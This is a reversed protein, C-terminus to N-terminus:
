DTLKIIQDNLPGTSVYRIEKGLSKEIYRFFGQDNIMEGHVTFKDYQLQGFSSYQKCVKLKSLYRLIDIKTIVLYTPNNLAIAQKLQVLDLWGCRRPRGTTAGYEQGKEQLIRFEKSTQKLETPFPGAGVRTSYAKFVGIINKIETLPIGVGLPAYAALTNCSTVYPYDGHDIDLMTGNAGELLIKKEKKIEKLLYDSTDCTFGALYDGFNRYKDYFSYFNLIKRSMLNSMKAMLESSNVLDGMRIGDRKYKSCYTPGIGKKTTGIKMFKENEEDEILHIPFTVHAKNSILLNGFFEINHKDKLNLIENVLIEPDIVMGNGLLHIKDQHLVSSPLHHLVLKEQKETYITHGANGGGQFRAIIDYDKALYNTIKGKGEDGWQLGILVDAM